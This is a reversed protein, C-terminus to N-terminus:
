KAVVVFTVNEQSSKKIIQIFFSNIQFYGFYWLHYIKSKNEVAELNQKCKKLCSELNSNKEEKWDGKGKYRFTGSTSKKEAVKKTAKECQHRFKENERTM